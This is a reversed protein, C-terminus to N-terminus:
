VAQAYTCGCSCCVTYIQIDTAIMINLCLSWGGSQSPLNVSNKKIAVKGEAVLGEVSKKTQGWVNLARTKKLTSAGM